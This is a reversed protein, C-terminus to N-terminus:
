YDELDAWRDFDEDEDQSPDGWRDNLPSAPKVKAARKKVGGKRPASTSTAEPAPVSAAVSAAAAADARGDEDDEDDIATWLRVPVRRRRRAEEPDFPLVAPPSAPPDPCGEDDNCKDLECRSVSGWERREVGGAVSEGRVGGPVSRGPPPLGAADAMWGDIRRPAAWGLDVFAEAGVDWGEADSRRVIKRVSAPMPGADRQGGPAALAALDELTARAPAAGGEVGSASPPPPLLRAGPLALSVRLRGREPDCEVVRALVAAGRPLDRLTRADGWPGVTGDGMTKVGLRDGPLLADVECRCRLILAPPDDLSVRVRGPLLLAPDARLRGKLEELTFRPRSSPAKPDSARSPSHAGAAGRIRPRRGGPREGVNDGDNTESSSSLGAGRSRRSGRGGGRGGPTSSWSRSERTAAPAPADDPAAVAVVIASRPATLPVAFSRHAPTSTVPVSLTVAGM